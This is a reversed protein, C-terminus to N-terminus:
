LDLAAKARVALEATDGGADLLLWDEPTEPHRRTQERAVRADADSADASRGEVRAVRGEEDLVLWLGDFRCRAASAVDRIAVREEEAAFVADAIVSFGSGLAMGALRDIEAYVTRSAERTYASPNLREEPAVGALRKRLVDSRLIRAGPASGADGGVARALTSKGTGSLGGMAILRVPKRELLSLALDLYHCAHRALEPDDAGQEVRTALVHARISARVAMFLPLLAVADEDPVSLDLYRNFLMNAQHTLGREWLDMLLFALDYLVDITALDADFELRDFALPRGDVLAINGLHLDGHVHRIRGERGRRDLLAAHRDVLREIHAYLAEVKEPKLLGPFAAMAVANGDVVKRLRAAGDPLRVIDASAHLAVVHDALALILADDLGPGAAREELLAGDPFRRMELLWDVAEGGGDLALAGGSERTIRHLGLYLGPATRRNLRLEADLVAHRKEPTSFDLYGFRVPRKLKWARDGALFVSAAHTDIRRVPALGAQVSGSRGTTGFPAGSQLWAIVDAENVRDM